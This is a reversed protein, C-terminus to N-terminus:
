QLYVNYKLLRPLITQGQLTITYICVCVYVCICVLVYKRKIQMIQLVLFKQEFGIIKFCYFM